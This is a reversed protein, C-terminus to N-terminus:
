LADLGRKQLAISKSVTTCNRERNCSCSGEDRRELREHVYEPGPEGDVDGHETDLVPDETAVAESVVVEVRVIVRLPHGHPKSCEASPATSGDAGDSTESLNPPGTGDRFVDSLKTSIHAPQQTQRERGNCVNRKPIQFELEDATSRTSQVSGLTNLREEVAEDYIIIIHEDNRGDFWAVPSPSLTSLSATKIVGRLNHAEKRGGLM